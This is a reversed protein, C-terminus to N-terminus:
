RSFRRRERDALPKQAAPIASANTGPTLVPHGAPDLCRVGIQGHQITNEAGVWEVSYPVRRGGREIEIEAGSDLNVLVGRLRTGSASIDAAEAPVAFSKGKSDFGRVIVGIAAPVREERRREM